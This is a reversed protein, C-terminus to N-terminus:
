PLIILLLSHIMFAPVLAPTAALTPHWIGAFSWVIVILGAVLSGILPAHKKKGQTYLTYLVTPGCTAGLGSWAFSILNYVSFIKCLAIAFSILPLLIICLRSLAIIKESPAKPNFFRQYLDKVVISSTVLIQTDITTLGAAIIACLIFGAFFAPFLQTVMSVFVLESNFLTQPFFAIGILGIAFAAGLTILQWLTGVFRARKISNPNKIGMFNVLIHPQGTYGLGWGLALLLATVGQQFTYHTFSLPIQKLQAITSISQWGQTLTSFAYVPVLLIMLVLFLGQFLDCWAVGIFGGFYTYATATFLGIFVGVHYPLHFVTEFMIGMGVLGAAIYFIFFFLAFLATTLRLMGSTDNCKKEFYESLTTSHLRATEARLKPAIYTWSAYMGILLGIPVWLQHIGGLYVAGPFGMFLWISMDSSHTAIATALYNLSRNGLLFEGESAAKKHFFIALGSLLTLYSGIAYVYASNM